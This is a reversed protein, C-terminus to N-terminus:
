AFLRCPLPEGAEVSLGFDVLDSFDDFDELEKFDDLEVLDPCRGFDQSRGLDPSRGLDLLDLDGLDVFNVLDPCEPLDDGPPVIFTALFLVLLAEVEGVLSRFTVKEEFVFIFKGM